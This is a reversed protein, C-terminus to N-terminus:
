RTVETRPLRTWPQLLPHHQFANKFRVMYRLEFSLDTEKALSRAFYQVMQVPQYRRSEPIESEILSALHNLIRLDAQIVKDIDPRKIKVAVTDGNLLIAKHVQAISASGIPNVDISQFVERIPCGLHSEILAYIDTTAIPTVNCQLQEFEEIWEANFIDVRTSLIQGLKVFTPELEEFALRFRRPTSMYRSEPAASNQKIPKGSLRIRQVFEGLGYKSLIAIIERLRSFDRMALLTPIMM